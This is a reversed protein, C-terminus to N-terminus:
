KLVGELWRKLDTVEASTITHGAGAYSHFEPTILLNELM